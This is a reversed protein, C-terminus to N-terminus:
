FLLGGLMIWQDLAEQQNQIYRATPDDKTQQLSEEEKHAGLDWGNEEAM